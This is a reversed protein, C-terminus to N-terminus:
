PTVRGNLNRHLKLDPHLRYFLSHAGIADKSLVTMTLRQEWSENRCAIRHWTRSRRAWEERTVGDPMTDTNNWYCYDRLWKPRSIECFGPIGWLIFYVVRSNRPDLLVHAGCEAFNEVFGRCQEFMDSNYKKALEEINAWM